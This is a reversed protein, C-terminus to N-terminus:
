SAGNLDYLEVGRVKKFSQPVSECKTLFFKGAIFCLSPFQERLGAVRRVKANLKEAERELSLKRRTIPVAWLIM